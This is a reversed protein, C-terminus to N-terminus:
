DKQKPGKPQKSRWAAAQDPKGWAEYLKVLRDVAYGVRSPPTDVAVKMKEYGALLLPEADAHHGQEFLSSGFASEVQGILWHGPPLAKRRIDLAERLFPEAEKAEGKGILTEGLGVLSDALYAHGAPLVKRRLRLTDRYLPEAEALKGGDLLLRALNNRMTLVEPHEPGLLAPGEKVTQRMIPEAEALKDQAKLVQALSNMVVLTMPHEKGPGQRLAELVRSLLGAAEDLKGQAQLDQALNHTAELTDLAEPGKQHRFAEVVQRHLQEGEAPNGQNKLTLGLVNMATLTTQHQPSLLVKGADIAERCLTVVESYRAQRYRLQAMDTLLHPLELVDIGPSNRCLELARELQAEAYAYLGLSLYTHGLAQRVSMEIPPQSGFRQGVSRAAEDLAKKLTIDPGRKQPTALAFLDHIFFQNIAETRSAAKRAKIAENVAHGEATRAQFLSQEVRKWERSLLVIGVALALGAVLLLAVAGTVLPKHRRGWRGLRTSWPEAYAAVPEDALWREVDDALATASEYRDEPKLSMAQRCVAALAPPTQRNLQQPPPFDGRQVASLIAYRDPDQFPPQGTLLFYLTAGLGYVDSTPGVVNWRGAAQEPSMFAPTGLAQGMMTGGDAPEEAITLTGPAEAKAPDVQGIVKALGWDVVLTEGFRGLLINAPKLDRHIIGKSHAYAVANCAAVFHNLLQRFRLPAFGVRQLGHAEPAHFRDGAEKLTEGEVFRMAYCPQGDVDHVLGHVPVIGPHELRATIEAERLFRRRSEEQHGHRPQIRKLAVTRHLEGDEALYVIGLGGEAHLRVPHYRIPGGSPARAAGGTDAPPLTPTVPHGSKVPEPRSEARSGPTNTPRTPDVSEPM